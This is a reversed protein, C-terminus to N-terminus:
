TSPYALKQLRQLPQLHPQMLISRFARRDKQQLHLLRQQQLSQKLLCRPWINRLVPKPPLLRQLRFPLSTSQLALRHLPQLHLQAVQRAPLISKSAPRAVQLPLLRLRLLLLLPLL